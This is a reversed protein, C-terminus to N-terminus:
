VPGQLADFLWARAYAWERRVSRESMSLVAATEAESLGAYFRLRVVEAARPDAQLLRQFAEDVAIVQEPDEDAALDVGTLTV